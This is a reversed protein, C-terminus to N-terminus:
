VMLIKHSQMSIHYFTQNELNDLQYTEKDSPITIIKVNENKSPKGNILKIVTLVYSLVPYIKNEVKNWKIIIKEDDSFCTIKPAYPLKQEEKNIKSKNWVCNSLLCNNCIYKCYNVNCQKGQDHNFCSKYCKDRNQLIGM